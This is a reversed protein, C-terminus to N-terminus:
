RALLQAIKRTLRRSDIPKYFISTAGLETVFSAVNPSTDGTMIILPVDWRKLSSLISRAVTLGNLRPLNLDLLVLAPSQKHALQLGTMGDNATLTRYGEAGLRISLAQSLDKDDEIILIQPAAEVEPALAQSGAKDPRTTRPAAAM